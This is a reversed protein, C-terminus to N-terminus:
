RLVLSHLVFGVALLALNTVATFAMMKEIAVGKNRYFDYEHHRFRHYLYIGFATGPAFLIFLFWPIFSHMIKVVSQTTAFASIGVYGIFALGSLPFSYRMVKKYYFLYLRIAM